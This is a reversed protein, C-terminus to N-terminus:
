GYRKKPGSVGGALIAEVFYDARLIEGNEPDKCMWDSFKDVHGSTRLVDHPTLMTCDVEFMDEKLIFHKQWTGIINAQLIYGPPGYDYPGSVMFILRQH